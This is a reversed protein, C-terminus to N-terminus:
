GPIQRHFMAFIMEWDRAAATPHFIDRNPLAYGHMYLIVPPFPGDQEPHTVFTEMRGSPTAIEVFREKM